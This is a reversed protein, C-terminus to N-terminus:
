STASRDGRFQEYEAPTDLDVAGAEFEVAVVRDRQRLLIEKAGRESPLERLASFYERAFLAPIGVTGAYSSAVLAASRAEHEAILRDILSVSVHPQDCTLLVVADFASTEREIAGIGACISTGIGQAFRANEVFVVPLDALENRMREAEVGVVVFTASVSSAIAEEVSRRLLTRSGVRLLQKPTGMRSSSGAALVM